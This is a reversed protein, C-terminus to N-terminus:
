TNYVDGTVQKTHVPVTNCRNSVVLEFLSGDSFGALVKHTGGRMVAKWAEEGCETLMERKDKTGSWDRRRILRAAWQAPAGGAWCCAMNDSFEFKSSICTSRSGHELDTIQRDSALVLGDSGLLGIQMTMKDTEEPPLYYQTLNCGSPDDWESPIQSSEM